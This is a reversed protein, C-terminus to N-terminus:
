SGMISTVYRYILGAFLIYTHVGSSNCNGLVGLKINLVCGSNIIERITM